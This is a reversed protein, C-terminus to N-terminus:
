LNYLFEMGWTIGWGLLAGFLPICLGMLIFTRFTKRIEKEYERRIIIEHPNQPNYQILVQEGPNYASASAGNPTVTRITDKGVAYEIIPRYYSKKLRPNVRVQFEDADVVKGLVTESCRRVRKKMFYTVVYGIGIFIVGICIFPIMIMLALDATGDM